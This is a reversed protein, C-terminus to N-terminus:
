FHGLLTWSRGLLAWSRGLLTWSRGLFAWSHGVLTWSRGSLVFVDLFVHFRAFGQFFAYFHAFVYLVYKSLPPSIWPLPGLLGGLTDLLKIKSPKPFTKPLIQSSKPSSKRLNEFPDNCVFSERMLRELYRLRRKFTEQLDTPFMKM